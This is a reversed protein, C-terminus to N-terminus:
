ADREGKRGGGRERGGEGKLTHSQLGYAIDQTRRRQKGQCWGGQPFRLDLQVNIQNNFCCVVLKCLQVCVICNTLGGGGEVINLMAYTANRMSLARTCVECMNKEGIFDRKPDDCHISSLM